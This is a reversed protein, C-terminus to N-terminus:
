RGLSGELLESWGPEGARAAVEPMLALRDAALLPSDASEIAMRGHELADQARGEALALRLLGEHADQAGSGGGPASAVREWDQRAAGDHGDEFARRARALLLVRGAESDGLPGDLQDRLLSMLEAFEVDGRHNYMPVTWAELLQELAAEPGIRDGLRELADRPALRLAVLDSADDPVAGPGAPRLGFLELQEISLRLLAGTYDEQLPQIVLEWGAGTGAPVVVEVEGGQGGLRGMCVGSGTSPEGWVTAVIPTQTNSTPMPATGGSTLGCGVEAFYGGGVGRGLVSAEIVPQGARQIQFRLGSGWEIVRADAALRFGVPGSGRVLPVRAITPAETIADIDLRGRAKNIRATDARSSQALLELPLPEAALSALASVDVPTDAAPDGAQELGLWDVIGPWDLPPPESLPAVPEFPLVFAHLEGSTDQLVAGKGLIRGRAAAVFVLDDRGNRDLDHVAIDRFQIPDDGLSLPGEIHAPGALTGAVVEFRHLGEPPGYPTDAGFIGPGEHEHVTSVVVTHGDLVALSDAFGIRARAVVDGEPGGDYVRLEFGAPPGIAAVLDPEGDGDFDLQDLGLIYSGRAMLDPGVVTLVGTQPDVEYLRRDTGATSVFMRDGVVEGTWVAAPFTVATDLQGDVRRRVSRTDRDLFWGDVGGMPQLQHEDSGPALGHAPWRPGGSRAWDALLERVVPNHARDAARRLDGNWLAMDRDVTGGVVIASGQAWPSLQSLREWDGRHHLVQAMGQLALGREQPTAARVWARATHELALQSDRDVVQQARQLYASPLLSSGAQSPHSVFSEFALDAEDFRGQEDLAQVAAATQAWATQSSAESSWQWGTAVGGVALGLALGVGVALGLDDRYKRWWRRLPRARPPRAAQGRELRELDAVVAALSPYREDLETRLMAHVVRGLEVLDPRTIPKPVTRDMLKERVRVGTAAEYLVAGLSWQDALKWDVDDHVGALVEPAMYAPTGLQQGAITVATLSQRSVDRAVGFDTLLPLGSGDMLVNGPKIDRHVIGAAHVASLSRALRGAIALVQGPELPGGQALVTGLDDGYVREMAYWPMGQPTEGADLLRVVGPVDLEKMAAAERAFRKREREGANSGSRMLKIAVAKGSRTDRGAYVVGWAGAGLEGEVRFPGFRRAIGDM